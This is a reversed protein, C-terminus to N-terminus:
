TLAPLAQHPNSPIPVGQLWERFSVRSLEEDNQFQFATKAESETYTEPQLLHYMKTM